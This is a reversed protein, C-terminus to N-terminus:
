KGTLEIVVIEPAAETRVPPGWFGYGASTIATLGNHECRGYDLQYMKKTILRNPFLQGTHTHGSLYLDYGAAAAEAMKRPQHDLLISYYANNNAALSNLSDATRSRSFDTLGTIKIKGDVIADADRLVTFGQQELMRQWLEPDDIYEHNGFSVYVGKPARVGSLAALSDEEQVYAIKEDVLDGAILVADPQLENIRETLREAYSRGLIRGLHLDTLFLMKYHEGSALKDTAIRETRVVPHFARYSGWAVFLCIVSFCVAALKASPLQWGIIKGALLLLLHLAALLLTYYGFALWLGELWASIKVLAHPLSPSLLRSFIANLTLLLYAAGFAASHGWPLNFRYYLYGILSLLLDVSGILFIIRM